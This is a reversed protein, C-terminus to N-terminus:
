ECRARRTLAFPVADPHKAKLANLDKLVKTYAQGDFKKVKAPPMMPHDNTGASHVADIQVVLERTPGLHKRAASLIATQIAEIFVAREIGKDKAVIDITQGLSPGAAQAPAAAATSKRTAM